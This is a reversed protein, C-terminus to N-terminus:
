TVVDTDTRRMTVTDTIREDVMNTIREDVTDTIREDVTDRRKEDVMDTIREDVTDRRKEDVMDTIREDVTARRKETVTDESCRADSETDEIRREDVTARRRETVMNVDITKTDSASAVIVVAISMREMTRAMVGATDGDMTSTAEADIM